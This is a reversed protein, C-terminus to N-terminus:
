LTAGDGTALWGDRAAHRDHGLLVGDDAVRDLVAERGPDVGFERARGSLADGVAPDERRAFAQILTHLRPVAGGKTLGAVEGLAADAQSLAMVLSNDYALKPPLPAPVFAWFRGLTRVCTGAQPAKFDEPQM